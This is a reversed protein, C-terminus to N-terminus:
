ICSEGTPAQISKALVVVDSMGLSQLALQKINIGANHDRGLTLGCACVHRRESLKKKVVSGCGSCKQSTGRPNVPVVWKGASM